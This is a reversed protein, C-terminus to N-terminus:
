ELGGSETTIIIKKIVSSKGSTQITATYMGARLGEIIHTTKGPLFSYILNGLPDILTIKEINFESEFKITGTSPNPFIYIEKKSDRISHIGTLANGGRVCLVSLKNTKFAHSTIGYQSDLYWAKTTLNPLSTSSWFQKIGGSFVSSLSPNIKNEDNISQLEKIDPLRWDMFGAFSLNESISIAQEWTLSDTPAQQWTLGTLQDTVTGNANSM